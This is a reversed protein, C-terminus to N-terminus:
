GPTRNKLKRWNFYSEVLIIFCGTMISVDAMNFIGTQFLGFDIHLFDTVSGHIVRDYINGIGGGAIFCMGLITLNSSNNKTMVYVLLLGLIAIPLLTLLIVRIPQPLSDGLSLFAGRNEIKTLTLYNGLLGIQEGYEIRKRVINKSVQDCGITSTLIVLILLTRLIMKPRM